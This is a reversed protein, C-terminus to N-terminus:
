QIFFHKIIPFINIVLFFSSLAFNLFFFFFSAKIGVVQLGKYLLLIQEVLSYLNLEALAMHIVWLFTYFKHINGKHEM